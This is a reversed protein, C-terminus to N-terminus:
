QMIILRDTQIALNQLEKIEAIKSSIFTLYIKENVSENAVVADDKKLISQKMM